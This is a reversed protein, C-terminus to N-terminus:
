LIVRLLVSRQHCACSTFGRRMRNQTLFSLPWLIPWMPRFRNLSEEQSSSLTIRPLLVVGPRIDRATEEKIVQVSFDRGM